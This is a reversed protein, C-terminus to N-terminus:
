PSLLPVMRDVMPKDAQGSVGPAWLDVVLDIAQAEVFWTLHLLFWPLTSLSVTICCITFDVFKWGCGCHHGVLIYQPDPIFFCDITLNMCDFLLCVVWSSSVILSAETSSHILNNIAFLIIWVKNYWFSSPSHFSPLLFTKSLLVFLLHFFLMYYNNSSIFKVFLSSLYLKSFHGSHM